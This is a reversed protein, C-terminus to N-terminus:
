LARRIWKVLKIGIMVVFVAAGVAAIETGAGTIATVDTAANAAATGALALGGVLARNLNRNSFM